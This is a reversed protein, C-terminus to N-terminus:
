YLAFLQQKAPHPDLQFGHGGRGPPCSMSCDVVLPTFGMVMLSMLCTVMNIYTAGSVADQFLWASFMTSGAMWIPDQEKALEPTIGM